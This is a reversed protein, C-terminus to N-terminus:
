RPKVLRPERMATGRLEGDAPHAAVFGLVAQRADPSGM